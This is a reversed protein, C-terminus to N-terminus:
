KMPKERYVVTIDNIEFDSPVIGHSKFHLQVSYINNIGSPPLLEAQKWIGNTSILGSTSYCNTSTGAYNSTTSLETGNNLSDISEGNVGYYVKVNTPLNIGSCKYTVYFKFCKKRSAPNKFTFDKTLIQLNSTSSADDNWKKLNDEGVITFYKIREDLDLIFNSKKEEFKSISKAWSKTFLSYEYVDVGNTNGTVLIKKKLPLFAIDTSTTIHSQWDSESIKGETLDTVREGDYLFCGNENAWAIGIDTVTSASQHPIGKGYFTDELFEADRTANILYMVNKKFQLIRDAYSELKIITDGDNKVVDIGKGESPFVDFNNASTKIMRDGYQKGDQYINAIYTRRNLVTATGYNATISDVNPSFGNLSEYSELLPLGDTKITSSVYESSVLSFRESTPYESEWAGKLGKTYSLEAIRYPIGDDEMYLNAGTVRKNGSTMVAGDVEATVGIKYSSNSKGFVIEQNTAGGFDYLLSENTTDDYTYSMLFKQKGTTTVGILDTDGIRLDSIQLLDYGPIDRYKAFPACTGSSTGNSYVSGTRTWTVNIDLDIRKPNFTGSISTEYAEEYPFEIIHWNGPPTSADTFKTHDIRFKIYNSDDGNWFKIYADQITLALSASDTFARAHTGLWFQRNEDGPLRVAMYISQGTGFSKVSSTNFDNAAIAGWQLSYSSDDNEGHLALGFAHYDSDEYGDSENRSTMWHEDSINVGQGTNGAGYDIKSSHTYLGNDTDTASSGAGPADDEDHFNYIGNEPKLNRVQWHVGAAPANATVKSISGVSPAELEQKARYWGSLVIPNSGGSDPFLTRDVVGIWQSPNIARSNSTDFNADSIRLAGDVYYFIPKISDETGWDTSLDLFTTETSWAANSAGSNDLNPLWYLKGLKDDWLIIYDTDQVSTGDKAYDSSFRFLSYGDTLTDM